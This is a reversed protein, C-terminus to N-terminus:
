KKIRIKFQPLTIASTVEEKDIDFFAAEDWWDYFETADTNAVTPTIFNHGNTFSNPIEWIVECSSGRAYDGTKTHHWKTNSEFIMLGVPNIISLGFIPESIDDNFQYEVTVILDNDALKTKVKKVVAKQTGWRSGFGEESDGRHRADMFLKTYQQAIKDSNGVSIIKGNEIMAARDCYERISNMDHSIFVVTKKNKKLERFYNFCKKQFAADGVALVEDLLLIDSNAKIAISFALRVQMGSSYNKLKQDMFRKMEAFEVIEDYMSHMQKRNFGLLSGNLFVNDRGTLEQNFGVGLEIFPTLSGNVVIDGKTPTYTGALLKLLTSKGSGNRGVIGFFEGENITLTIDNLVTQMEFSSKKFGSTFLNKVSNRKEHPLKFIKTVNKIEIVTNDTTQDSM